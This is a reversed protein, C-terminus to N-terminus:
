TNQLSFHPHSLKESNFLWKSYVGHISECRMSEAGGEGTNESAIIMKGRATQLCTVRGTRGRSQQAKRTRRIGVRLAEEREAVEAARSPIGGLRGAKQGAEKARASTAHLPTALGHAHPACRERIDARRLDYLARRSTKRLHTAERRVKMGRAPQRPCRPPARLTGPLRPQSQVRVRM